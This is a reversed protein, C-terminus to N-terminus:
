EKGDDMSSNLSIGGAIDGGISIGGSIEPLAADPEGKRIGKDLLEKLTRTIEIPSFDYYMKGDFALSMAGSEESV